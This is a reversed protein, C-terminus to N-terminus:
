AVLFSMCHCMSVALKSIGFLLTSELCHQCLFRGEEIFALGGYWSGSINSTVVLHILLIMVNAGLLTIYKAELGIVRVIIEDLAGEVALDHGELTGEGWGVRGEEDTIKVFLWRPKVRFHEIKAIKVM